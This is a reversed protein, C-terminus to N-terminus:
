ISIFDIARTIEILLFNVLLKDLYYFEALDVEHEFVCKITHGCMHSIALVLLIDSTSASSNM